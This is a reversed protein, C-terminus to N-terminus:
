LNKDFEFILDSQYGSNQYESSLRLLAYEEFTIKFGKKRLMTRTNNTYNLFNCESLLKKLEKNNLKSVTKELNDPSAKDHYMMKLYAWKPAVKFTEQNALPDTKFKNLEKQVMLLYRSIYSPCSQSYEYPTNNNKDTKEPSTGHEILFRIIDSNGGSFLSAILPTIGNDNETELYAGQGYLFEVTDIHNGYKCALILATNGMSDKAEIHAGKSLYLKANELDGREAAILLSDNYRVQMHESLTKNMAIMPAMIGLAILLALKIIQKKM